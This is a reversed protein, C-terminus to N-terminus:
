GYEKLVRNIVGLSTELAAVPADETIGIAFGKKSGAEEILHRTHAEVAAPAEILMSSTYNIWLAKDAWLTRAEKISVDGMPPPTIAEVIDFKAEGIVQKLSALRGDMHVGLKKGTGSLWEMTRKYAPMCYQRFRKDGVVDSTINDGYLIIEVPARAALEFLEEYRKMMKDHLSEILEPYDYLDLSFKELGLMQYLMEQIPVKGLRVYVLGDGGIRRISERIYDYNDHFVVDDWVYEMTTYDEPGKIFHEKIWLSTDYASEPVLTQYVEGVPTKIIKRIRRKGKEWYETSSFTVNQHEVQHAPLRLILGVGNERLTRETEGRPLFWDYTTLPIRDPEEWNLATLLRERINM